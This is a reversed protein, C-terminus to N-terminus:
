EHTVEILNILQENTPPFEIGYHSMRFKGNQFIRLSKEATSLRCEWQDGSDKDEFNIHRTEGACVLAM